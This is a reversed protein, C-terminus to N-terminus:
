CKSVSRLASSVATSSSQSSACATLASYASWAACYLLMLLNSGLRWEEAAAEADDLLGADEDDALPAAAPAAETEAELETAIKSQEPSSNTM